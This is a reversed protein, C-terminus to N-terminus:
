KAEPRPKAPACHDLCSPVRVELRGAGGWRTPRYALMPDKGSAIFDPPVAFLLLARLMRRPLLRQPTWQPSCPKGVSPTHLEPQLIIGGSELTVDRPSAFVEKQGAVIRIEFALLHLSASRAGRTLERGCDRISDVRFRFGSGELWTGIEAVGTESHDDALAQWPLCVCILLLSRLFHRRGVRGV